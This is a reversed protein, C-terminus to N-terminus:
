ETLIELKKIRSVFELCVFGKRNKEVAFINKINALM